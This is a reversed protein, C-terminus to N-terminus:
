KSGKKINDEAWLPQLNKFHCLKYIEEETKASSLPIIHDIHWKGQNNWDMGSLFKKEIYEKLKAPTCGIIKFTENKKTLKRLKLFHYIRKRCLIKLRFVPDIKKRNKEYRNCYELVHLKNELRYNKMYKKRLEINNKRWNKDSKKAKDSNNKRWNQNLKKKCSKCCTMMGDKTDRRIGFECIDKVVGCKNCIKKKM